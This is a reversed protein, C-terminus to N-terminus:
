LLGLSALKAFFHNSSSGVQYMIRPNCARRIMLNLFIYIGRKLAEEVLGHGHDTSNHDDGADINGPIEYISYFCGQRILSGSKGVARGLSYSRKVM